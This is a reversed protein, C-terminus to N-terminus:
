AEFTPEMEMMLNLGARNPGNSPAFKQGSVSIRSYTNGVAELTRTDDSM